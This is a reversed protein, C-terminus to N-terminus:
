VNSNAGRALPDSILNITGPDLIEDIKAENSKNPKLYSYFFFGSIVTVVGMLM